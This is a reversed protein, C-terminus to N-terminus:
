SVKRGRETIVSQLQGRTKSSGKHCRRRQRIKKRWIQERQLRSLEGLRFSILFPQWCCFSRLGGIGSRRSRGSGGVGGEVRRGSDGLGPGGCSGAAAGGFVAGVMGMEEGVGERGREGGGETTLELSIRTSSSRLLLEALLLRFPPGDPPSLSGLRM